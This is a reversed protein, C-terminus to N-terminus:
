PNWHSGCGRRPFALTVATYTSGDSEIHITGGHHEVINRCIALGLGAGEQQKSSVFPEFVELQLELPIGIGRDRIELEIWDQGGRTARLAAITLVKEATAKPFRQNLAAQSNTILNVLAQKM